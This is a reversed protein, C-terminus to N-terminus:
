MEIHTHILGRLRGGQRAISQTLTQHTLATEGQLVVLFIGDCLPALLSADVAEEWAPADILILDFRPKLWGLMWALADSTPPEAAHDPARAPLLQLGAVSTKVVAQELAVHGALADYLGAGITLGLRDALSPRTRQADVLVLRRKGQDAGVVALNLLVTSTGIHPRAGSLLLSRTAPGSLSELIKAFLGAYQQSIPHNPQHYAIIEPALGRGAAAGPWVEFSVAMPRAATLDIVKVPGAKILSKETPPHPPQIPAQPPHNVAMVQASGEIKKGAGVEIFPIEETERLSWDVVCEERVTAGEVLLSRGASAQKLTELMRGM